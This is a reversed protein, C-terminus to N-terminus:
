EMKEEMEQLEQKQEARAAQAEQKADLQQQLLEQKAEKHQELLLAQQKEIFLSLEAFSGGAGVSAHPQIATPQPSMQMSPSFSSDPAPASNLTATRAVPKPTSPAPAPEPAPALAPRAPEPATSRARAAAAPPPVGESVSSPKGREGIERAVPDIRKEFKADDEDECDYFGYWLRTGLFLGLWGKAQYGKQAMLPIMDVGQQHAYNAELRCNGSEKYAESVTYLMVEANDIADSM